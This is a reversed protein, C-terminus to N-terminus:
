ALGAGGRDGTFMAQMVRGENLDSGFFEGVIRGSRMVLVRHALGLVEALDSSILLVAMGEQALSQILRYIARKAGVDVGATPEDAILVQPRGFLWKAFLVKQQNGGSLTRAEARPDSPRVDLERLLRAVKSHERRVEVFPGRAVGKLHPLSVNHGVPLRPVLGQAKRNEPLLAIGADIAERPSRPNVVRGRVKITGTARVGAGFIARAVESRGSGVLGALGVIEGARVQFSIGTFARPATLDEVWLVIPSNSPPYMKDPFGVSVYRGLMAEVLSEPTEQSVPSTKICRGNRLVTVIDALSLVEELYHSVYLITTGTAKLRRTLSHLRQAEELPMAATAEDVVILQVDRALARLIEVKKQDALSLSSVLADPPVYLGSRATLEDYRKLMARPQVFGRRVSEIGLFVNEVVTLQPVLTVEQSILAIGDRLADRPSRFGVTRGRVVIQGGDPRLVGSVIKGLTSKGAGNEGVLAHVVGQEVALSVDKLAEVGDFRKSVSRLLVAPQDGM